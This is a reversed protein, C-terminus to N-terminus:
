SGAPALDAPAHAARVAAILADDDEPAVTRLDLLLRGDRLYGVVPPAGTRLRRALAEHGPLALAEGAIPQTPAAGGGVFADAPVIEVPLDGAAGLAAAVRALRARHVAPAVWLADIPLPQSTLHRRLVAELAAAAPRGLRLARYLAHRRCREVLDVRGALLGAQPGGLLKDGSGCVLDAGAALLERFSPHEALERAPHPRLLGAGEDVVLPVGAGHALEALEAAGVEAVFGEVRYNSPHVKLVLATRPSLAREYDARHTRNTTGVEVLTAGAAAVLDPVRFSDGIEVLEGRSVVVERGRALAGLVLLLAAANNNVAVAAGAGTLAAVLPAIRGLRDGRRGSALELELDCGATLLAPLAAAV